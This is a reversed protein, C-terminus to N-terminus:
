ESIEVYEGKIKSFWGLVKGKECMLDNKKIDFYDKVDPIFPKELEFYFFKGDTIWKGYFEKEEYVDGVCVFVKCKEPSGIDPTPTYESMTSSYWGLIFHDDWVLDKNDVLIVTSPCLYTRFYFVKVGDKRTIKSWQGMITRTKTKSEDTPLNQSIIEVIKCEDLDKDQITEIYRERIKSYWGCINGNNDLEIDRDEIAVPYSMLYKSLYSNELEFFIGQEGTNSKTKIKWVGPFIQSVNSNGIQINIQCFSKPERYSSFDSMDHKTSDVIVTEVYEGRRSSFWGYVYRHDCMLDRKKIDFRWKMLLIPNKLDFHYEGKRIGSENWSGVFKKLKCVGGSGFVKVNCKELPTDYINDQEHLNRYCSKCTDNTGCKDCFSKNCVYCTSIDFKCKLCHKSSCFDCEYIRDDDEVIQITVCKHCVFKQISIKVDVSIHKELIYNLLYKRHEEALRKIEKRSIIDSDM